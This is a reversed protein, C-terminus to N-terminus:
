PRGRAKRVLGVVEAGTAPPKQAVMPKKSGVAQIILIPPGGASKVTALIGLAALKPSSVPYAGWQCDLGALDSTLGGMEALLQATKQDAVTPDYILYSWLKATVPAPTPTPAPGPGPTPAPTWQFYLWGLLVLVAAVGLGLLFGKYSTAPAAPVVPAVPALPQQPTATDATVSAPDEVALSVISVGQRVLVKTNDDPHIFIRGAPLASNFERVAAACETQAQVLKAAAESHDRARATAVTTATALATQKASAM